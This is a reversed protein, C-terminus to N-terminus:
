HRTTSSGTIPSFIPSFFSFIFNCLSPLYSTTHDFLLSHYPAPLPTMLACPVQRCCLCVRRILSSRSQSTLQKKSVLPSVANSRCTQPGKRGRSEQGGERGKRPQRKVQLRQPLDGTAITRVCLSRTLLCCLYKCCSFYAISTWCVRRMRKLNWM